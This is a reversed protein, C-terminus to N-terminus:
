HFQVSFVLKQCTKSAFIGKKKSFLGFGLGSKSPFSGQETQFVAWNKSPVNSLLGLSARPSCARQLSVEWSIVRHSRCLSFGRFCFKAWRACRQPITGAPGSSGPVPVPVLLAASGRWSGRSGCCPGESQKQWGLM